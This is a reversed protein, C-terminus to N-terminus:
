KINVKQAVYVEDFDTGFEYQTDGLDGTHVTKEGDDNEAMFFGVDNPIQILEKNYTEQVFVIIKDAQMLKNLQNFTYTTGSTSTKAKAELKVGDITERILQKLQSKTM